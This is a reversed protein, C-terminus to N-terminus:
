KYMLAFGMFSAGFSVSSMLDETFKNESNSLLEMVSVVKGGATVPLIACSKYGRNKYGIFEPFSSFESLQNDIYPKRTNLVYDLLASSKYDGSYINTMGVKDIGFYDSIIKTFNRTLEEESVASNTVPILDLLLKSIVMEHVMAVYGNM